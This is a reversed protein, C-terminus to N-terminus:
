TNTITHLVTFEIDSIMYEISDPCRRTAREFRIEVPSNYVGMVAAIVEQEKDLARDYDTPYADHPRLRYAFMVRLTTSLYLGVVRRQRESVASSSATMIGFGLHAITNEIRGFYEPPINIEKFGALGAVKAAVASRVQAVSLAM